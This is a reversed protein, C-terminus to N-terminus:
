FAGDDADERSRVHLRYGDEIDVDRAFKFHDINEALMGKGRGVLTPVNDEQAQTHQCEVLRYTPTDPSRADTAAQDIGVATDLPKYIDCLFLFSRAQRRNLPMARGGWFPGWIPGRRLPDGLYARDNPNPCGFPNTIPATVAIQGIAPGRVGARRTGVTAILKDTSDKLTNLHDVRDSASESTRNM